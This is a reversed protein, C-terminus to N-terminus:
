TYKGDETYNRMEGNIYASQINVSGSGFELCSNVNGSSNLYNLKFKGADESLVMHHSATSGITISETSSIVGDKIQAYKGDETFNRIGDAGYYIGPIISTM